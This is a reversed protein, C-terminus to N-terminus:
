TRAPPSPCTSPRRPRRTSSRTARARGRQPHEHVDAAHERGVQDGRRRRRQKKLLSEALADVQKASVNAAGGTSKIVAGTQAGVKQAESMEGVVARVGQALGYTGIAGAAFGAVRGLGGFTSKGQRGTKQM